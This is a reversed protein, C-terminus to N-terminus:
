DCVPVYSVYIVPQVYDPGLEFSFDMAAPVLEGGQCSGAQQNALELLCTAFEEQESATVVGDDIPAFSEGWRAGWSNACIWYHNNDTSLDLEVVEGQCCNGSVAPANLVCAMYSDMTGPELSAPDGLLYSALAFVDNGHWDTLECSELSSATTSPLVHQAPSLSSINSPATLTEDKACGALLLTAGLMPVLGQKLTTFFRPKM